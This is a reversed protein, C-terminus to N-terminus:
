TYLIHSVTLCYELHNIKKELDIVKSQYLDLLNHYENNETILTNIEKRQKAVIACYVSPLDDFIDEYEKQHLDLMNQLFMHESYTLFKGKKNRECLEIVKNREEENM